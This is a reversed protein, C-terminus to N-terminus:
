NSGGSLSAQAGDSKETDDQEPVEGPNAAPPREAAVQEQLEAPSAERTEPGVVPVRNPEAVQPSSLKHWENIEIRTKVMRIAIATAVFFPGIKELTKWDQTSSTSRTISFFLGVLAFMLYIYDLEKVWKEGRMKTLHRGNERAVYSLLVFFSMFYIL